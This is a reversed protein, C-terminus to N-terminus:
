FSEGNLQVRAAGRCRGEVWSRDRVWLHNGQAKGGAGVSIASLTRGWPDYVMSEFGAGRMLAAIREDNGELM